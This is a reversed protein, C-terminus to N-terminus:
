KKGLLKQGARLYIIYKWRYVEQPFSSFSARGDRKCVGLLHHRCKRKMVGSFAQGIDTLTWESDWHDERHQSQPLIWFEELGWRKVREGSHDQSALAPNPHETPGWQGPEMILLETVMLLSVTSFRQKLMKHVQVFISFYILLFYKINISIYTISTYIHTYFWSIICKLMRRRGKRKRGLINKVQM